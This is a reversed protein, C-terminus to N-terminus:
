RRGASAYEEILHQYFGHWQSSNDNLVKKWLPTEKHTTLGSFIVKQDTEPLEWLFDGLTDEDLSIAQFQEEYHRIAQVFDFSNQGQEQIILWEWQLTCLTLQSGLPLGDIGGMWDPLGTAVEVETELLVAAFDLDPTFEQEFAIPLLPIMKAVISELDDLFSNEDFYPREWSAERVIYKGNEETAQEIVGDWQHWLKRWIQGQKSLSPVSIQSVEPLPNLIQQLTQQTSPPLQAIAAEQLEPSLVEFLADILQAIEHQTLAEFFQQALAIKAPPVTNASSKSLAPSQSRNKKPM